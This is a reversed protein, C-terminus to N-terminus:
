VVSKRDLMAHTMLTQHYELREAKDLGLSTGYVSEFDFLNADWIGVDRRFMKGVDCGMWVPKDDELMKQTLSKMTETEINLYKVLNGGVVNGLCEVTYTRMMPSGERPDNVVCVYEELPTDIYEAAFEQPTMEGKRHFKKDKDQWQWMFSTPPTGLHICLIRWVGSLIEQRVAEVNDGAERCQMAGDRLKWKLIGNMKMTSSSSETEPMASKPVLGHKKVLNAFMNWQGGDGIPDSLLFAITRDDVDRDATDIIHQLFWNAREFKDWFMAWNQSFEFEKINMKKMAPVRLMNLAAFLWCRGSKKQNTVKWDDLHTSFSFDTSQVVERVLAIDDITTQTVANQSVSAAPDSSFDSRFQALMSDTIPSSQITTTTM